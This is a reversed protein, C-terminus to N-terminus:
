LSFYNGGERVFLRERGPAAKKNPKFDPKDQRFFFKLIM